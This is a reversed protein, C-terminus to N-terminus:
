ELVLKQEIWAMGGRRDRVVVWLSQENLTADSAVTYDVAHYPWLTNSQDFSGEQLYWAFYPEETREETGGTENVFTYTEIADEALACEITYTQGRTLTLTAGPTIAIGDVNLGTILPNHNPTTALSVPVRKYAVEVNEVATDLTGSDGELTPIASVTVIATTGELKQDDTLADLYDDPVTWSPEFYPQVGILGAEQLQAYLAALEEPTMNSTDGTLSSLLEEDPACGYADAASCTFWTTLGVTATPSVVLSRFSVTDGPQPEAPEAAIALVRLRDIQFAQSLGLSDCGSLLIVAVLANLVGRRGAPVGVRRRVRFPSSSAVKSSM